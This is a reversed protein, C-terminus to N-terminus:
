ELFGADRLLKLYRRGADTVEYDQTMTNLALFKNPFVLPGLNARQPLRNIALKGMPTQAVKALLVNAEPGLKPAKHRWRNLRSQLTSLAIPEATM